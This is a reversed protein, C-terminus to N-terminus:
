QHNNSEITSRSPGGMYFACDKLSDESYPARCLNDKLRQAIDVLNASKQLGEEWGDLSDLPSPYVAEARPDKGHLFNTAIQQNRISLIAVNSFYKSIIREIAEERSSAIAGAIGPGYPSSLAFFRYYKDGQQQAAIQQQMAASNAWHPAGKSQKSDPKPLRFVDSVGTWMAKNSIGTWIAKMDRGINQPDFKVQESQVTTVPPSVPQENGPPALTLDLDLTTETLEEVTALDPPTVTSTSTSTSTTTEEPSVAFEAQSTAVPNTRRVIKRRKEIDGQRTSPKSASQTPTPLLEPEAQKSDIPTSLLPKAWAGATVPAAVATKAVPAPPIPVSCPKPFIRRTCTRCERSLNQDTEVLNLFWRTECHECDYQYKGPM